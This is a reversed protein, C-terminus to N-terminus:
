REVRYVTMSDAHGIADVVGQVGLELAALRWPGTKYMGAIPHHPDEFERFADFLQRAVEENTADRFPRVTLEQLRARLLEVTDRFVPFGTRELTEFTWWVQAYHSHGKLGMETNVNTFFAGVPGVRITQRM